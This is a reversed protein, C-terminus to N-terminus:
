ARAVDASSSLLAQVITYTTGECHSIVTIIIIITVDGYAM